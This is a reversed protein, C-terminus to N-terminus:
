TDLDIANSDITFKMFIENVGGGWYNKAPIPFNNSFLFFHSRIINSIVYCKNDKFRLNFPRLKQVFDIIGFVTFTSCFTKFVRIM